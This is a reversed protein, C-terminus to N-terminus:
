GRYLFFPDNGYLTFDRPDELTLVQRASLESLMWGTVERIGSLFTSDKVSVSFEPAAPLNASLAPMLRRRIMEPVTEDAKAWIIAVPRDGRRNGLRIALQRLDDLAKLRHEGALAESDVVLAFAHAQNEIWRAGEAGPSAHDIAWENFWEGPADTFLVDELNSNARQFALHLLGPIRGSSASTHPPFRPHNWSGTRLNSALNEWGLLTYSGAFRRDAIGLGRSLELYLAILLTTKGAGPSGVIGLLTTPSRAAVFEASTEGLSNGTWPFLRDATSSSPPSSPTSKPGSKYHPCKGLSAGMHCGVVEPDICRPESCVSM